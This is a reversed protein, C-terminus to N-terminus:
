LPWFRIGSLSTYRTVILSPLNSNRSVIWGSRPRCGRATVVAISWPAGTRRAVQGDRVARDAGYSVEAEVDLLALDDGDEAGVSGALRAREVRDHPQDWPRPCRASRRAPSGRYGGPASRAARAHREGGLPAAHERREGHVLVKAPRSGTARGPAPRGTVRAPGEGTGPARRAACGPAPVSEPPSCCCSAIARESM